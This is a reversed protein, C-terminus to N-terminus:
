RKQLAAVAAVENLTGADAPQGGGETSFRRLYPDAFYLRETHMTM